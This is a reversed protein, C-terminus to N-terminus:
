KSFYDQSIGENLYPLPFPLMVIQVTCDRKFLKKKFGFLCVFSDWQGSTGKCIDNFFCSLYDYCVDCTYLVFYFYCLIM